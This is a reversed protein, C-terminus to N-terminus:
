RGADASLIGRAMDQTMPVTTRRAATAANTSIILGASADVSPLLVAAATLALQIKQPLAPVGQLAIIIADVDADVQRVLAQAAAIDAAKALQRSIPQLDAVAAGITAVTSPAIGAIGGITSLAGQLGSAITEVDEAAAALAPNVDPRACAVLGVVCASLALLNRRSVM